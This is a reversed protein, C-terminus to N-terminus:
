LESSHLSEEKPGVSFNRFVAKCGNQAIPCAAYPGVQWPLRQSEAGCSLHAIRVFNYDSSGIPAAEVVSQNVKHIKLSASTSGWPQTSWDSFYNCVVVYLRPSGDCYEIGCKVWHDQDIFVLLGAQDFQTKPVFDFDVKVSVEIGDPVSYVLASADSKVLLPTYFTKSWFDKKCPASIHLEAGDQTIHYSGGAGEEDSPASPSVLWMTPDNLWKLDPSSFSAVGATDMSEAINHELIRISIIVDKSLM